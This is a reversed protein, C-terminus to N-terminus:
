QQRRGVIGAGGASDQTATRTAGAPGGSPHPGPTRSRLRSGACWATMRDVHRGSLVGVLLATNANSSDSQCGTLRFDGVVPGEFIHLGSSLGAPAAKYLAVRASGQESKQALLNDGDVPERGDWRHYTFSRSSTSSAAAGAAQQLDALHWVQRLLNSLDSVIGFKGYRLDSV